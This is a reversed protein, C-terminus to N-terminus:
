NLLAQALLGVLVNYPLARRTVVTNTGVNVCYGIEIGGLIISGADINSGSGIRPYGRKLGLQNGTAGLSTGYMLMVNDGIEVQQGIVIGHTHDLVIRKRM